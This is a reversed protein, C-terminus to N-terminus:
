AIKFFSRLKSEKEFTALRDTALKGSEVYGTLIAKFKEMTKALQWLAEKGDKDRIPCALWQAAIEAEMAAMAEKLLENELLETAKRGRDIDDQYEM